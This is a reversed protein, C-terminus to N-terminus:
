LPCIYLVFVSGRLPSDPLSSCPCSNSSPRRALWRRPDPDAAPSRAPSLVHPQVPNFVRNKQCPQNQSFLVKQDSVLNAGCKVIDLQNTGNELSESCKQKPRKLLFFRSCPQPFHAYSMVSHSKYLASSSKLFNM